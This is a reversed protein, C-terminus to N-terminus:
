PSIIGKDLLYQIAEQAGTLVKKEDPGKQVITVPVGRFGHAQFYSRAQHITKHLHVPIEVDPTHPHQEMLLIEHFPNKDSLDMQKLAAIKKLDEPDTDLPIFHWSYDLPAAGERALHLMVETCHPCHLSFFFHFRPWDEAGPHSWQIAAANELDPTDTANTAPPQLIGGAAGGAIWVTMGLIFLFAKKRVLAFLALIVFLSVAVIICMLCPEQIVLFQFGMLSGDFSLAGIIMITVLGWLWARNYRRAFFYMLWLALLFVFGLLVLNEEGIRVYEGVILCGETPCISVGMTRRVILDIGLGLAALLLAAHLLPVSWAYSEQRDAETNKKKKKKM